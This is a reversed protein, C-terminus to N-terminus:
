NIYISKVFDAGSKQHITIKFEGHNIDRTRFVVNELKVNAPTCNTNRYTNEEYGWLTLELQNNNLKYEIDWFHMCANTGVTGHFKIVLTDSINVTDAVTISDVQIKFYTPGYDTFMDCSSFAFLSILSLFLINKIM